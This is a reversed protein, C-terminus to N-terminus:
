KLQKVVSQQYFDLATRIIGICESSWGLCKIHEMAGEYDEMKRLANELSDIMTSATDIRPLFKEKYEAETMHIANDQGGKLLKELVFSEMEELALVYGEYFADAERKRTNRDRDATM